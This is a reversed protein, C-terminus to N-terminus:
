MSSSDVLFSTLINVKVHEAYNQVTKITIVQIITVIINQEQLVGHINTM